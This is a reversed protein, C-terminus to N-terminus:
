VPCGPVAGPPACNDPTNGTVTTAFLSVQGIGEFIGGGSGGPDTVANNEVRSNALTAPWAGTLVGGGRFEATNGSVTTGSIRLIGNSPGGILRATAAGAGLDAKNGTIQAGSVSAIGGDLLGGGALGATNDFLGGGRMVMNNVNVVGGGGHTSENGRVESQDLSLTGKSFIGGGAGAKSNTVKSAILATNGGENYIGGGSNSGGVQGGTVTLTNLTLRGGEKVHLIRFDVTATAAREITSGFGSIRVNGTIEPLGDDPNDADVLSYTCGPTLEVPDGSTNANTIAARLAPIDNCPVPVTPQAHALGLPLLGLCLGLGAGATVSARRLTAEM